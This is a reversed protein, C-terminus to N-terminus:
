ADATDCFLRNLLVEAFPPMHLGALDAGSRVIEVDALESQADRRLHARIKAALADAGFSSRYEVGISIQHACRTLVFGPVRELDAEDLGTEEEVERRISAAIDIRDDPGVDRPDIFGGPLYSLGANLYGARQRGLLVAGESSRILASGFVDHRDASPSGHARWYYFSKFSVPTLVASFAAAAQAESALMFVTGNFLGPEAAAHRLWYADILATNQDAYPWPENRAVLRCSEIREVSGNPIGWPSANM